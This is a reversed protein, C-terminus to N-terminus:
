PFEIRVFESSIEPNGSMLWLILVLVGMFCFMSVFTRMCGNGM